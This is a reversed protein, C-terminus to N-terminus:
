PEAVLTGEEEEKLYKCYTVYANWYDNALSAIKKENTEEV